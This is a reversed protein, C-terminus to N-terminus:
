GGARSICICIPMIPAPQSPPVTPRCHTVAPCWLCDEMHCQCSGIVDMEVCGQGVGEAADLGRGVISAIAAYGLRGIIRLHSLKGYRWADALEALGCSELWGHGGKCFKVCVVVMNAAGM